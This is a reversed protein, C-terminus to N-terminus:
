PAEPAAGPPGFLTSFAASSNERPFAEAPQTLGLFACLPGWGAEVDFRLLQVPPVAARVARRHAEYVALAQAKDHFRGGFTRELIMARTLARHSPRIGDGPSLPTEMTAVITRAASAYWAEPDRETLIIKLGPWRALAERWLFLAPWDVAAPYADLLGLAAEPAGGLAELWPGDHSPQAMEEAMHYCPGYGLIELARKLTYTGTRGFGAGLVQLGAM